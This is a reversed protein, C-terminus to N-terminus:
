FLELSKARLTGIRELHQAEEILLRGINIIRTVVECRESSVMLDVPIKGDPFIPELQNFKTLLFLQFLSGAAAYCIIFDSKFDCKKKILDEKAREFDMKNAKEEGRFLLYGNESSFIFDLRNNEDDNDPTVLKSIAMSSNRNTNCSVYKFRFYEELPFRIITDWFSIKAYETPGFNDFRAFINEDLVRQFAGFRHFEDPQQPEFIRSRNGFLLSLPIPIKTPLQANIFEKIIVINEMKFEINRTNLKELITHTVDQPLKQFKEERTKEM